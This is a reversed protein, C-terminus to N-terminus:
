EKMDFENMRVEETFVISSILEPWSNLLLLLKEKEPAKFDDLKAKALAKVNEL